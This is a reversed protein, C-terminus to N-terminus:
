IALESFNKARRAFVDFRRLDKENDYLLGQLEHGYKIDILVREALLIYMQAIYACRLKFDVKKAM